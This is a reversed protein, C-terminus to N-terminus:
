TKKHKIKNNKLYKFSDEIKVIFDDIIIKLDYYIKLKEIYRRSYAIFKEKYLLSNIDFFNERIFKLTTAFSSGFLSDRFLERYTKHNIKSFDLEYHIELVNFLICSCIYKPAKYHCPIGKYLIKGRHGYKEFIRRLYQLCLKKIATKSCNKLKLYNNKALDDIQDDLKQVLDDKFKEDESYLLSNNITSELSYYKRLNKLDNRAKAM